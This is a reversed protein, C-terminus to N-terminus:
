ASGANGADAGVTDQPRGHGQKPLREGHELPTARLGPPMVGLVPPRRVEVVLRFDIEDHSPGGSEDHPTAAHRHRCPRQEPIGRPEIVKEFERALVELEVDHAVLPLQELGELALM